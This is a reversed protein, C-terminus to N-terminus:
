GYYKILATLLLKQMNSLNEINGIRHGIVSNSMVRNQASFVLQKYVDKMSKCQVPSMYSELNINEPANDSLYNWAFNYFDKHAKKQNM